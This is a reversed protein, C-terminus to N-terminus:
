VGAFQEGFLTECLTIVTADSGVYLVIIRGYLYLHPNDNWTIDVGKDNTDFKQGDLSFCAAELAAENNDPYIFVNLSFEEGEFTIVRRTGSLFIPDADEWSVTYGSNGLLALFSDFDQEGEETVPHVSTEPENSESLMQGYADTLQDVYGCSCFCLSFILSLVTVLLVPRISFFSSQKIPIQKM